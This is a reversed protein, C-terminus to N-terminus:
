EDIYPGWGMERNDRHQGKIIDTSMMDQETEWEELAVLREADRLKRKYEKDYESKTRAWRFATGEGGSLKNLLGGSPFAEILEIERRRWEDMPVEDILFIEPKLGDVKLEATWAMVAKAGQCLHMTLRYQLTRCTKGIYMVLNNRPDILAYLKANM